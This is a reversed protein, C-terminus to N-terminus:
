KGARKFTLKRGGGLTLDFGQSTQSSLVGRITVGTSGVLSLRQGERQVAGTSTTTRGSKVHALSFRGAETLRIAFAEGGALPAVWSGALSATVVKQPSSSQPRTTASAQEKQRAEYWTSERSVALEAMETLLRGLRLSNLERASVSKRLQIQSLETDYAFYAGGADPAGALLRLLKEGGLEAAKKPTALGMTLAIESRGVDARLVTPITWEGHTVTVKVAKGDIREPEYGATRLMSGLQGAGTVRSSAVTKDSSASSNSSVSAAFVSEVAFESFLDDARSAAPTLSLALAVLAFPALRRM